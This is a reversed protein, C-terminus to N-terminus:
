PNLDKGEGRQNNYRPFFLFRLGTKNLQHPRAGQCTSTKFYTISDCYSPESYTYLLMQLMSAFATSHIRLHDFPTKFIESKRHGKKKHVPETSTSVADASTRHVDTTKLLNPRYKETVSIIYKPGVNSVVFVQFQLLYTALINMKMVQFSELSTEILGVVTKNASLM